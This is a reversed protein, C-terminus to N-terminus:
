VPQSNLDATLQAVTIISADSACILTEPPLNLIKERTIQKPLEQLSDLVVVHPADEPWNGIVYAVKDDLLARNTIRLSGLHIFDNPRNRHQPLAHKSSTHSLFKPFHARLADVSHERTLFVHRLQLDDNQIVKLVADVDGPIDFLAADRTIEDWALYCDSIRRLERWLSLDHTM